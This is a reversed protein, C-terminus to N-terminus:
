LLMVTYNSIILIFILILLPFNILHIKADNCYNTFCMCSRGKAFGPVEKEECFRQNKGSIKKTCGALKLKKGNNQEIFYNFTLINSSYLYLGYKEVKSFGSFIGKKNQSLPTKSFVWKKLIGSLLCVEVLAM